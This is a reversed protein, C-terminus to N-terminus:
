PFGLQKVSPTEDVEEDQEEEFEGLGARRWSELDVIDQDGRWNSPSDMPYAAADLSLISTLPEQIRVTQTSLFLHLSSCPSVDSFSRLLPLPIVKRGLSHANRGIKGSTGFTLTAVGAVKPASLKKRLKWRRSAL